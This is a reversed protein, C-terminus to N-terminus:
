LKLYFYKGLFPLGRFYLSKRTKKFHMLILTRVARLVRKGRAKFQIRMYGQRSPIPKLIVGQRYVTGDSCILYEPFDIVPKFLWLTRM